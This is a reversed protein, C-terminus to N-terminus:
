FDFSCGGSYSNHVQEMLNIDVIATDMTRWVLLPPKRGVDAIITVLREGENTPDVLGGGQATRFQIILIKNSITKVQPFEYNGASYKVAPKIAFNSLDGTYSFCLTSNGFNILDTGKNYINVDFSLKNQMGESYYHCNTIVSEVAKFQRKLKVHTLSNKLRDILKIMTNETKTKLTRSRSENWGRLSKHTNSAKNSRNRIAYM